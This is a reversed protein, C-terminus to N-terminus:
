YAFDRYIRVLTATHATISQGLVSSATISLSNSLVGQAFREVIDGLTSRDLKTAHPSPDKSRPPLSALATPSTPM